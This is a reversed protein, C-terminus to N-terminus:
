GLSSDATVLRRLPTSMYTYRRRGLRVIYFTGVERFGGNLLARLSISNKLDVDVFVRKVGEAHCHALAVSLAAQNLGNGRLRELTFSKYLYAQRKGVRLRYGPLRRLSFTVWWYTAPAGEVYGILCRDGDLLWRRAEQVMVNNFNLEPRNLRGLDDPAAWCFHAPIRAPREAPPRNVEYKLLAIQRREWIRSCIRRWLRDQGGDRLALRGRPTLIMLTGM